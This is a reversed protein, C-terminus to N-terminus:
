LIPNLLNNEFSPLLSDLLDEVREFILLQDCLCDLLLFECGEGAIECDENCCELLM